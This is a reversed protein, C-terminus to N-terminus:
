SRPNSTRRMYGEYGNKLKTHIYQLQSPDTKLEFGIQLDAFVARMLNEVSGANPTLTTTAGPFTLNAQIEGAMAALMERYMGLKKSNEIMQIVLLQAGRMKTEDFKM